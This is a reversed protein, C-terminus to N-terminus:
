NGTVHAYILRVILGLFAVAFVSLVWCSFKRFVTNRDTQAAICDKKIFLNDNLDKLAADIKDFRKFCEDEHPCKAM